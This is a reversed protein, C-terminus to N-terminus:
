ATPLALLDNTWGDDRQARVYPTMGRERLVSVPVTEDGRRLYACEGSEMLGVLSSTDGNVVEGDLMNQWWLQIVSQHAKYGSAFRVHTIEISV